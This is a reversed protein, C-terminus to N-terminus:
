EPFSFEAVVARHDSRWSVDHHSRVPTLQPNSWIQDISLVPFFIPWTEGSGTGASEFSNVVSKRLPAYHVSDRPTNFDGAIVLPRDGLTEVLAALKQLPERRSFTPVGNLDVQLIRIERDRIRANYLAYYCASGLSGVQRNEVAGRILCLLNGPAFQASYTPFATIWPTRESGDDSLPEAVTLVDADYSQLTEAIGPFRQVPRAVNWHVVRLDSPAKSEGAGRWSEMIWAGFFLHVVIITAFVMRPQRRVVWIFPITLLTLVPWPTAYYLAALGDVSDRVSLRLVLGNIWIVVYLPYLQRLLWGLAKM